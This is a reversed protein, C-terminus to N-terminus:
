YYYGNSNSFQYEKKDEINEKKYCLNDRYLKVDKDQFLVINKIINYAYM